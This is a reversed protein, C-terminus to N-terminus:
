GDLKGGQTTRQNHRSGQQVHDAVRAVLLSVTFLTFVLDALFYAMKQFHGFALHESAEYPAVLILPWMHENM